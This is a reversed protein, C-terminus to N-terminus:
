NLAQPPRYRRFHTGVLWPVEFHEVVTLRKRLPFFFRKRSSGTDIVGICPQLVNRAFM